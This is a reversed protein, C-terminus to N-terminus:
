ENESKPTTAKLYMRYAFLGPIGILIIFVMLWGKGTLYFDKIGEMVSEEYGIGIFYSLSLPQQEVVDTGNVIYIVEGDFLNIPFVFLVVSIIVSTVVFLILSRKVAASM